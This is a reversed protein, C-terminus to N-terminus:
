LYKEKENTQLELELIREEIKAVLYKGHNAGWEPDKLCAKILEDRVPKLCNIIFQYDM